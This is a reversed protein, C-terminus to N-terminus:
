EGDIEDFMGEPPLTAEDAESWGRPYIKERWCRRIFEEDEPSVLVVGARKQIDIVRGFLIPRVALKIPGPLRKTVKWCRNVPRRAEFWVDYLENIPSERGYRAISSAPAHSSAQIAPCGICGFRAAEVVPDAFEFVNRDVKVDYISLLERTIPLFDRLVSAVQRSVQGNLWDIVQCLSWNIIPSYTTEDPMPLGCEGGAACSSRKLIKADRMASEGLRLGTLILGDAHDRKWRQMPKIKTSRSCWRMGQVGPFIPTNGIGLIRNYLRDSITPRVMVCEWGCSQLVGVLKASVAMLGPDEVGTDSQVLRPRDCRLQGSRRLWEIWTVLTTSDKGGSYSCTWPESLRRLQEPTPDYFSNM